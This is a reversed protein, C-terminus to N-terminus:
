AFPWQHILRNVGAPNFFEESFKHSLLDLTFHCLLKTRCAATSNASVGVFFVINKVAALGTSGATLALTAAAPYHFLFFLLTVLM